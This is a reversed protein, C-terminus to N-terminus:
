TAKRTHKGSSAIGQTTAEEQVVLYSEQERASGGDTQLEESYYKKLQSGNMLVTKPGNIEKVLYNAWNRREVVVYPGKWNAAFKRSSGTPVVPRWLLVIDGKEFRECERCNNLRERTSFLKGFKGQDSPQHLQGDIPILPERGFFLTYPSM